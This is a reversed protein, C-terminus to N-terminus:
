PCPGFRALFDLFENIGVGADGSGFDCSTGKEGWQALIALFDPINVEGDPTGQCDWPCGGCDSDNGDYQTDGDNDLGDTDGISWNELMGPASNCSDDANTDPSGYYPPPVDEPLPEPDFAHCNFCLTVNHMAHHRRLGAGEPHDGGYDRGHCGVCGFGPTDPTGGSQYTF